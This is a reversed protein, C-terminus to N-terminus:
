LNITKESGDALREKLQIIVEVNMPMLNTIRTQYNPEDPFIYMDGSENAYRPSNKKLEARMEAFSKESLFSNILTVYADTSKGTFTYTYSTAAINVFLPACAM